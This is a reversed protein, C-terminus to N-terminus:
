PRRGPVIATKLSELVAPSVTTLPDVEPEGFAELVAEPFGFGLQLVHSTNCEVVVFRYRLIQARLAAPDFDIARKESWHGDNWDYASKFYYYVSVPSCFTPNAIPETVIWAFSSSVMLLGHPQGRDGQRPELRPIPMPDAIGELWLLNALQLMDDESLGPGAGMTSADLDANVLDVGSLRELEDLLAVSVRAGAVRSWHTGARPFLPFDPEEVHWRDFLAQADLHNLKGSAFVARLVDIRRRWGAEDVLRYAWPLHEPLTEAKSPTVLLLLTVGHEALVAQARILTMVRGLIECGQAGWLHSRSTLYGDEVMWSDPGCTVPRKTVGFLSYRLQNDIRVMWDRAGLRKDISSEIQQQLKGEHWAALTVATEVGPDVVGNLGIRPLFGFWQQALPLAMVGVFAIPPLYRILSRM